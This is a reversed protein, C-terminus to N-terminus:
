AKKSRSGATVVGVGPQINEDARDEHEIDDNGSPEPLSFRASKRKRSTDKAASSGAASQEVDLAPAPTEVGSKKHKSRTVRAKPTDELPHDTDREQTSQAAAASRKGSTSGSTTTSLHHGLHASDVSDM